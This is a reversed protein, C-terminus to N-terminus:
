KNYENKNHKRGAIYAGHPCLDKSQGRYILLASFAAQGM